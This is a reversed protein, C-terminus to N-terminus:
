VHIPESDTDTDGIESSETIKKLDHQNHSLPMYDVQTEITKKSLCCGM